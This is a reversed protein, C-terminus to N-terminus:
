LKEGRCDSTQEFTVPYEDVSVGNITIRCDGILEGSVRVTNDNHMHLVIRQPYEPGSYDIAEEVNICYVDYLRSHQCEDGCCTGCENSENPNSM